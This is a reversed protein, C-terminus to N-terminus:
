IIKQLIELLKKLDEKKIVVSGIVRLRNKERILSDKKLQSIRILEKDFSKIRDISIYNENGLDIKTIEEAEGIYYFIKAPGKEEYNVKGEILLRELIKRTTHRNLNLINSIESITLGRPSKKLLELVKKLNNM